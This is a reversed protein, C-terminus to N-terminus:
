PALTQLSIKTRLQQLPHSSRFTGGSPGKKRKGGRGGGVAGPRAPRRPDVAPQLSQDYRRRWDKGEDQQYWEIFQEDPRGDRDYVRRSGGTSSSRGCRRWRWEAVVESAPAGGYRQGGGWGAAAATPSRPARTM